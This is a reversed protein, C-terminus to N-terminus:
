LGPKELSRVADAFGVAAEPDGRVGVGGAWGPNGGVLEGAVETPVGTGARRGVGLTSRRGLLPDGFKVGGLAAGVGEALREEVGNSGGEPRGGKPLEGVVGETAREAGNSGPREVSPKGTEREEANFRGGSGGFVAALSGAQAISSLTAFVLRIPGNPTTAIATKSVM